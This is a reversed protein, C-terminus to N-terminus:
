CGGRRTRAAGRSRPRSGPGATRPSWRWRPPATGPARGPTSTSRTTSRWPPSARTRRRWATGTRTPPQGFHPAPRYSPLSLSCQKLPGGDRQGTPSSRQLSVGGNEMLVAGSAGEKGVCVATNDRIGDTTHAM